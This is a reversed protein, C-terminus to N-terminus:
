GGADIVTSRRAGADAPSTRRASALLLRLLLLRRTDFNTLNLQEKVHQSADAATTCAASGIKVPLAAITRAGVAKV